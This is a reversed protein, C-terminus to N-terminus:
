NQEVNKQLKSSYAVVGLDAALSQEKKPQEM